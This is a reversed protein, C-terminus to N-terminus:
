FNDQATCTHLKIPGATLPQRVAAAPSPGDVAAAHQDLVAAPADTSSCALACGHPCQAVWHLGGSLTPEMFLHVLLASGTASSCSGAHWTPAPPLLAALSPVKHLLAHGLPTRVDSELLILQGHLLYQTATHYSCHPLTALVWSIGQAPRSPGQQLWRGIRNNCLVSSAHRLPSHHLSNVGGVHEASGTCSSAERSMFPALRACSLRVPQPASDAPRARRGSRHTYGVLSTVHM